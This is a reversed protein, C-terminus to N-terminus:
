SGIEGTLNPGTQVVVTKYGILISKKIMISRHAIYKKFKTTWKM